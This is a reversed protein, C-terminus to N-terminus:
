APRLLSLIQGYRNSPVLDEWWDGDEARGTWAAGDVRVPETPASEGAFAAGAATEVPLVRGCEIWHRDLFRDSGRWWRVRGSESVVFACEEDSLEVLRVAAATLTTGFYAALRRVAAFEPVADGLESAFLRSPMLLEAAFWNAEVEPVSGKYDARMDRSTCAAIQSLTAHLEFHGLEHAVAYRKRGAEAIRTSVRILGYDKRRLLWADASDLPKEVIFVNRAAALAVLDLEQPSELCYLQWLHAAAAEALSRSARSAAM